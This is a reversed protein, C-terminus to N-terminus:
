AHVTALMLSDPSIKSTSSGFSESKRSPTFKRNDFPIPETVTETTQAVERSNSSHGSEQQKREPYVRDSKAEAERLEELVRKTGNARQSSGGRSAERSSNYGERQFQPEWYSDRFDDIDFGGRSM